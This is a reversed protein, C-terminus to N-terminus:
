YGVVQPTHALSTYVPKKKTSHGALVVIAARLAEATGKRYTLCTQKRFSGSLTPLDWQVAYQLRDNKCSAM